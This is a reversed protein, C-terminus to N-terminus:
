GGLWALGLFYLGPVNSVGRDHAPRGKEDFADLKLWGFDLEFGTAWVISTVRAAKLDLSLLPNNVCDPAAGIQRPEPEEFILTTRPPTPTRRMWCRCTIQMAGRSIARWIPPLASAAMSM